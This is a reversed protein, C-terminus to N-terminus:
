MAVQIMKLMSFRSIDNMTKDCKVELHCHLILLGDIQIQLPQRFENRRLPLPSGAGMRRLKMHVSEYAHLCGPTGMYGKGPISDDTTTRSFRVQNQM